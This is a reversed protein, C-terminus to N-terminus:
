WISCWRAVLRTLDRCRNTSFLSLLIMFCPSVSELANCCGKPFLGCHASQAELLKLKAMLEEGRQHVTERSMGSSRGCFDLLEVLTLHDYLYPNEPLYGIDQQIRSEHLPKGRFLITGADPRVLGLLMRITTSKGAGNPGILGFVEGSEVQLNLSTVARVKKKFLGPKYVKTIGSLEIEKM